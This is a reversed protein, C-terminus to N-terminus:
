KENKQSRFFFFIFVVSAVLALTVSLYTANRVTKDGLLSAEEQIRLAEERKLGEAQIDSMNQQHLLDLVKGQKKQAKKIKEHQLAAATGQTAAQAVGVITELIWGFGQFSKKGSM